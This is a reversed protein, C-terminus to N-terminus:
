PCGVTGETYRGVPGPTNGREELRERGDDLNETEEPDNFGGAPEDGFVADVFRTVNDALVV